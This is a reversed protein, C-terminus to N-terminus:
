RMEDKHGITAKIDRFSQSEYGAGVRLAEIEKIAAACVDSILAAWGNDTDPPLSTGVPIDRWFKLREVIDDTPNPIM